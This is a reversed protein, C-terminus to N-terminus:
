KNSLIKNSVESLEGLRKLYEQFVEESVEEASAQILARQRAKILFRIREVTSQTKMKEIGEELQNLFSTFSSPSNLYQDRDMGALEAEQSFEREAIPQFSKALSRTLRTKKIDHGSRDVIKALRKLQREQRPSEQAFSLQSIILTLIVFFFSTRM